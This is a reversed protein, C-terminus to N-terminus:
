KKNNGCGCSWIDSKNNYPKNNCIEPSIYYPTGIITTALTHKIKDFAKSPNRAEKINWLRSAQTSLVQFFIIHQM